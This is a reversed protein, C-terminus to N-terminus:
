PNPATAVRRARPAPQDDRRWAQIRGRKGVGKEMIRPCSLDADGATRVKSALHWLEHAIEDKDVFFSEPDRLSLRLRIVRNGLLRLHEAIVTNLESAM